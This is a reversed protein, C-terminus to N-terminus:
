VYGMRSSEQEKQGITLHWRLEFFGHESNREGVFCLNSTHHGLKQIIKTICPMKQLLVCTCLKKYFAGRGRGSLGWFTRFVHKKHPSKLFSFHSLNPKLVLDILNSITRKSRKQQGMARLMTTSFRKFPWNKSDSPFELTTNVQAQCISHGPGPFHVLSKSHFKWFGNLTLNPNNIGGILWGGRGM